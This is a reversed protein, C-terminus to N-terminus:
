PKGWLMVSVAAGGAGLWYAVMGLISALWPRRDRHLAPIRPIVEWGVGFLGMFAASWPWWESDVGGLAAAGFVVAAALYVHSLLNVPRQSLEQKVTMWIRM